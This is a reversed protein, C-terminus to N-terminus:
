GLSSEDKRTINRWIGGSLRLNEPGSKLIETVCNLYNDKWRTIFSSQSEFRQPDVMKELVFHIRGDRWVPVGFVTPLHM